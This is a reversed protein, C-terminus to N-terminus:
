NLILEGGVSAGGENEPKQLAANECRSARSTQYAKMSNM